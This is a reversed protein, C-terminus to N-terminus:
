LDEKVPDIGVVTSHVVIVVRTSSTGPDYGPHEVVISVVTSGMGFIM